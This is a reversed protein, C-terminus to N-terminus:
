FALLSLYWSILADGFLASFLIGFSLYPGMALLRPARAIKMRLLHIISGVICGVMLAFLIKQWGLMLGCAAMLKVDGGGIAKGGSLYYILALPASVCVAGILYHYFHTYDLGMRVLGLCALFLNFGVPIEYTRWDIVSLAILASAALSFLVADACPGLLLFICFYMGGNVAEILPYQASIPAHCYRCKGRLMLYSLVPVLDYFALRHGCSMCHSSTKVVEEGRPVRLILVNTFSGICVGFLAAMAAFFLKVAM